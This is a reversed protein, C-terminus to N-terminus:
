IMQFKISSPLNEILKSVNKKIIKPLKVLKINTSAGLFKEGIRSINNCNELNITELKECFSLFSEGIESLSTNNSLDLTVIGSSLLFYDQIREISKPLIVSNLKKCNSLFFSGIALLNTNNLLDLNVIGSGNLFRESIKITNRPLTVSKIEKCNALFYQGIELINDNAELNLRVIGSSDLFYNPIREISTPLTVSELKKCYKLFNDGIELINDNNELNITKISSETLFDNGIKTISKPLIVSELKKCFTLFNDSIVLLNTYKSLDLKVIGTNVLFNRQIRRIFKPLIVSELKKCNLLFFKGIELIKDYKYLDLNEIETGSLFYDGLEEINDNDPLIIKSLKNIGFDVFRVTTIKKIVTNKYNSLNLYYKNELDPINNLNILLEGNDINFSVINPIPTPLVDLSIDIIVDCNTFVQHSLRINLEYSKQNELPNQQKYAEILGENEEYSLDDSYILNDTEDHIYFITNYFNFTKDDVIFEMDVLSKISFENINSTIINRGSLLKVYLPINTGGYKIDLYKQKYKLYKNQYNSM